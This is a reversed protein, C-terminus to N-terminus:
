IGDLDIIIPDEDIAPQVGLCQNVAETAVCPSGDMRQVFPIRMALLARCQASKTQKGTIAQIEENLLILAM